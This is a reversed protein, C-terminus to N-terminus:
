TVCAHTAAILRMAKNSVSWGLAIQNSLDAQERHARDYQEVAEKCQKQWVALNRKNQEM